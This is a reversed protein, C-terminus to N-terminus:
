WELSKTQSQSGHEVPELVRSRILFDGFRESDEREFAYRRLLGGLIDLIEAECVGELYLRNLRQGSFDAGLHLNYLGPAKGVLGIEAVYPRVCGNPCGTMRITIADRRLGVEDLINELKNLLRPLYTQAEAMALGCTPLAVCALSHLRMASYRGTDLGRRVLEEEIQGKAYSPVSGLILNQNATLIVDGGIRELAGTMYRLGTRLPLGPSDAIYGNEVFVTYDWKGDHRERWGYPDSNSTFAFPYAKGLPFGCRKEVESRFWDMGRDELTYKLRARKRNQRDGYDRQVLLVAEVVRVALDTPCSGVVRALLPYTTRVGHTTGMGGGVTVNWAVIREYEVVAIFGCCHAFVDVDNLPPVAIAVKFKRPLYSKGYLPETDTHGVIKKQDLWIERYASTRPKLHRSISHALTRVESRVAEGVAYPTAMVNRSVDGCAALTSLLARDIAQITRRLDEKIIGHLQYAQRTTIKLSGNGYTDALEDMARYQTVTGTGGPLGIRVMFSYARELGAADQGSRVSRLDQQYIGHFKTLKADEPLLKGTSADDLGQAITGRLYDSNAKIIEDTRLPERSGEGVELDLATWLAAEWPGLAEEFGGDGQDDGLGVPVLRNALTALKSDVLRAPLCFAAESAPAGEGWYSSDGLGFVGFSVGPLPSEAALLERVLDRSGECSEGQGATSLVLILYEYGGELVGALELERAEAGVAPMGAEQAKRVLEEAVAAGHGGDSGYLVLLKPDPLESDEPLEGLTPLSLNAEESLLRVLDDRVHPSDLSFPVSSVPNWRYLPWVGDTVDRESQRRTGRHALVVARGRSADAERLARTGQEGFSQAAISAVFIGGHRVAQFGPDESESDGRLSPATLILFSCSSAAFESIRWDEGKLVMWDSVLTRRIREYFAGAEEWAEDEEM